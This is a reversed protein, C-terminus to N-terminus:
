RNTEIREGRVSAVRGGPQKHLLFAERLSLRCACRIASEDGLSEDASTPVTTLPQRLTM